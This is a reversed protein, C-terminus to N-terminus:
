FIWERYWSFKWGDENVIRGKAEFLAGDFEYIYSFIFEDDTRSIVKATSWFGSFDRDNFWTNRYVSGDKMEIIGPPNILYGNRDFKGGETIIVTLDHNGVSGIIFGKGMEYYETFEAVAEATFSNTLREYLTGDSLSFDTIYSHKDFQFTLPKVMQPFLFGKITAPDIHADKPSFGFVICLELADDGIVNLIQQLEKDEETFENPIVITSPSDDGIANLIQQLEKDQRTLGNPIVVASSADDDTVNLSQQLEKDEGTFENPIVVASSADNDTVNLSQQPKKDEVTLENPIVAASPANDSIVDSSSANTSNGDFPLAAIKGFNARFVAVGAVIALFAAIATAAGFISGHRRNNDVDFVIDDSQQPLDLAEELLKEDVDGLM